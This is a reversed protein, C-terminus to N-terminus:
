DDKEENVEEEEMEEEDENNSKHKDDKKNSKSSKFEALAQKLPENFEEFEAEELADFIDQAVLTKRNVKQAIQTSLSTIYLIFMSAAKAVAAKVDKGIIVSEPLVEKIIRQVPANPLNLDELKEAM